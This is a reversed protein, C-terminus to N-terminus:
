SKIIRIALLIKDSIKSIMKSNWLWVVIKMKQFIDLYKVHALLHWMIHGYVGSVISKYMRSQLLDDNHRISNEYHQFWEYFQITALLKFESNRKNNKSSLNYTSTRFRFLINYPSVIGNHLLNCTTIDDSFCALPLDVFAGSKKLTKTKFVFCPLGLIFRSTYKNYLYMIQSQFEPFISDEKLMKGEENINVVRTRFLDVQPYKVTLRDIEELFLPEYVDDDSAMILFETDCMDVLLNWHSVLSKSGMNEENRRYSFRSDALYPECINHLDEPSCDDSIIVKFDTYTQGKISRLMEDLFRGKYAPLLFTYKM